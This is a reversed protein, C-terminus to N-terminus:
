ERTILGMALDELTVLGMADQPPVDKDRPQHQM